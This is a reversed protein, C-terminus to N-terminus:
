QAYLFSNVNFMALAFEELPADALFALALERERLTPPRGAALLYAREIHRSRDRGAERTLRRAFSAALRNATKGNLLELAQLPHTSQERCACSTQADPQDFVQAFPLPLNRKVILYVSRRDHEATDKTVTWSKPEYLLRVLDPDVPPVVSEGGFKGNLSGSVALM